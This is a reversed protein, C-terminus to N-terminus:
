LKGCLLSVDEYCNRQSSESMIDDVKMHVDLVLVLYDAKSQFMASM